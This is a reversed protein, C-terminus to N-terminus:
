RARALVGRRPGPERRARRASAVLSEPPDHDPWIGTEEYEAWFDVYGSASLKVKRSIAPEGHRTLLIAGPRTGATASPPTSPDVAIIADAAM